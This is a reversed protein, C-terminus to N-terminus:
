HQIDVALEYVKELKKVINDWDYNKEVFIRAAKTIKSFFDGNEILGLVEKAIDEERDAVILDKRNKAGLGSAGLTTTVVAVGSAMAELIKYSTGGGVRIPALLIDSKQFILSTDDPANEDFVIDESNYKKFYDPINKGVIWLRIKLKESKFKSKLIPWVEKLIFGAADRNQVWKFNGIFLVTKEERDIKFKSNQIKFKNINVGNPIVYVNKNLQKVIEGDDKSVTIVANARKWTDEENKKIKSIDIYLLPKLLPSASRSFRQYVMYEINHEAVVLPLLSEPINHTIYFTEAHILDFKEKALLGEIKERMPILTHGTVLFSNPSVASLLINSLSWQKKRFVTILKSCIKKVEAIDKETQYPRKECVLTVNHKKNLKKLINYLRINGGSHLPYPLYSSVMLIKM